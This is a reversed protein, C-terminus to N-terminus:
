WHRNPRLHTVSPVVSVDALSKQCQSAEERTSACQDPDQLPHSARDIVGLGTRQVICHAPAAAAPADMVFMVPVFVPWRIRWPLRVRMAVNINTQAVLVENDPHADGASASVVPATM